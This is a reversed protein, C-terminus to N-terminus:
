LYHPPATNVPGDVGAEILLRLEAVQARLEELGREMADFQKQQATLAANLEAVLREQFFLGEELRALRDEM